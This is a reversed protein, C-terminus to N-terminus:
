RGAPTQAVLGAVLARLGFEFAADARQPDPGATQLAARMADGTEPVNAWM